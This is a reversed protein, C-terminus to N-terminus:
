APRVVLVENQDDEAVVLGHGQNAAVTGTVVDRHADDRVVARDDVLDGSPSPLGAQPGVAVRGYPAHVGEAVAEELGEVVSTSDRLRHSLCWSAPRARARRGQGAAPEGRPM